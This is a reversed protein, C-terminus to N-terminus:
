SRRECVRYINSSDFKLKLSESIGISLSNAVYSIKIPRWMRSCLTLLHKAPKQILMSLLTRMHATEQSYKLIQFALHIM